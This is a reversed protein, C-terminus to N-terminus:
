GAPPGSVPRLPTSAYGNINSATDVSCATVVLLLDVEARLEVSDGPATLARMAGLSADANVPTNQFFNVPAPVFGHDIGLDRAAVLYNEDCNRHDSGRGLIDHLGPRLQRM